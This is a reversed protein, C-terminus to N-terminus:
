PLREVAFSAGAGGDAYRKEVVLRAIQADDVFVVGTLADLACRALKDIDPMKSVWLPANPRLGKKTSHAQPRPLFFVLTVQLSGDIPPAGNVADLAAGSVISAWTKAREGSMNTIIARPKVGNKGPIVFARTSGKTSAVGPAWFRLVPAGSTAESLLAAVHEKHDPLLFQQSANM